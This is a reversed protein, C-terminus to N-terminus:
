RQGSRVSPKSASMPETNDARGHKPARADRLVQNTYLRQYANLQETEHCVKCSDPTPERTELTSAATATGFVSEGLAQLVRDELEYRPMREHAVKNAKAVVHLPWAEALFQAFGDPRYREQRPLSHCSECGHSRSALEGLSPQRIIDANDAHAWDVIDHLSGSFARYTPHALEVSEVSLSTLTLKDGQRTSPSIGRHCATCGMREAVERTSHSTPQEEGLENLILEVEAQQATTLRPGHVEAKSHRESLLAAALDRRETEDLWPTPMVSRGSMRRPNALYSELWPRQIKVFLASFNEVAGHCENCREARYLQRGRQPDGQNKSPPSVESHGLGDALLWALAQDSYNSYEKPKLWGHRFEKSSPSVASPQLLRTYIWDRSLKKSRWQLRPAVDPVQAEAVHCAACGHEVFAFRGRAVALKPDRTPSPNAATQEPSVVLRVCSVQMCLALVVIILPHKM